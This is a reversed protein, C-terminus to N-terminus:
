KKNDTLLAHKIDWLRKSLDVYYKHPNDFRTVESWLTQLQQECHRKIEKVSPSTYVCKGKSFIQKRLKVANFNTLEKKKWTNDPDFITYPKTDDINEGLLTLVDAIAKGSEKDYM